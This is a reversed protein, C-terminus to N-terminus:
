QANDNLNAHEANTRSGTPVVQVVTLVVAPRQVSGVFAVHDVASTLVQRDAQGDAQRDM